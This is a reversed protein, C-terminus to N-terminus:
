SQSAQARVVGFADFPLPLSVHLGCPVRQTLGDKPHLVSKRGVDDDVEPCAAVGTFRSARPTCAGRRNRRRRAFPGRPVLLVDSHAVAAVSGSGYVGRGSCWRQAVKHGISQVVGEGPASASLTM